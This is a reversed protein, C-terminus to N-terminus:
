SAGVDASDRGIASEDVIIPLSMAFISGGGPRDEIWLRGNHAAVFGRAIALGLGTGGHVADLGHDGRVFTDFIRARDELPVGPGRDAVRIVVDRGGSDGDGPPTPSSASSAPGDDVIVELSVPTDDPSYTCANEILNRLATVLRTEDALVVVEPIPAVEIRHSHNAVGQLAANVVSDLEISVTQLDVLGADIRRMDLLRQVLSTLRDAEAAMLELFEFRENDAWQVDDALLTTAYGKILALPTRFEHSVTALLGSKMRDLERDRTVDTFVLGRGIEAERADTVTFSRVRWTTPEAAGTSGTATLEIECWGDGSSRVRDLADQAAVPNVARGVIANLLEAAPTEGVVIAPVPEATLPADAPPTDTPPADTFSDDTFPADIFSDNRNAVLATMPGNVYILTGESSEVLLGDDVSEVIASMRSSVESLDQDTQAFLEANRLAAAAISAFSVSLEVEYHSYTYPKSKHLILVTPSQLVPPLPVALLSRYGFRRARERLVPAAYESETDSLQVPTQERSARVSPLSPDYPQRDLEELFPSGHGHVALVTSSRRRHDISVIASREAGLLHELHELSTQLVATPDLSSGLAEAGQLLSDIENFAGRIEVEIDTVAQALRKLEVPSDPLGELRRRTTSRIEGRVRLDEVAEVLTNTSIQIRQRLLVWVVLLGSILVAVLGIVWLGLDRSFGLAQSRPRYIVLIRTDSIRATSHWWDRNDADQSEFWESQEGGARVAVAQLWSMTAEDPLERAVIITFNYEVRRAGGPPLEVVMAERGAAALLDARRSPDAAAATAALQQDEFRESETLRNSLVVTMVVGTVVVALVLVAAIRGLFVALRRPDAPEFWIEPISQGTSRDSRM